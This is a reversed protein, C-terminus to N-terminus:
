PETTQETVYKELAEESYRYVAPGVQIVPPGKGQKRWHRLTSESIVLREATERPTLLKM